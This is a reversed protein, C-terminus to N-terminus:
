IKNIGIQFFFVLGVVPLTSLKCRFSYLNSSVVTGRTFRKKEWAEEKSFLKRLITKMFAKLYGLIICLFQSKNQVPNRLIYQM